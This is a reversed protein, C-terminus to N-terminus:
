SVHYMSSDKLWHPLTATHICYTGISYRELFNQKPWLSIQIHFVSERDICSHIKFSRDQFVVYFSVPLFRFFYKFFSVQPRPVLVSCLSRSVLARLVRFVHPVLVNLACSVHLVLVLLTFLCRLCLFQLGCSCMSCTGYLSRLYNLLSQFVSCNIRKTM